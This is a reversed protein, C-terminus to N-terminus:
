KRDLVLHSAFNLMAIAPFIWNHFYLYLCASLLLGTIINHAIGRHSLFQIGILVVAIGIGIYSLHNIFAYILIIGAIICIVKRVLSTGIDIDPLLSFFFSIAVLYLCNILTFPLWKMYFCLASAIATVIMGAMLHHPYNSM